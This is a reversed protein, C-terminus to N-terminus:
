QEYSVVRRSTAAYPNGLILNLGPTLLYIEGKLSITLYGDSGYTLDVKVKVDSKQNVLSVIEEYSKGEELSHVVDSTKTELQNKEYIIRGFDVMLFILFIFIPLILVFEVLAQGRHNLRRM